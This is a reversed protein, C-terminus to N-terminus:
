DGKNIEVAAVQQRENRNGAPRIWEVWVVWLAFIVVYFVPRLIWSHIFDWQQPIHVTVFSLIIIRLINYLHIILIGFPIYWLKKKWPGPFLIMLVTWQYFQKLGSCSGEVAVYGNNAFFLTNDATRISYHFLHEIVWASTLFVQHALFEETESFFAFKELFHKLGGSWWLWHFFYIIVAFLLIDVLFQFNNKKLFLKIGYFLPYNM